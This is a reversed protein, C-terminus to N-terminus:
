LRWLIQNNNKILDFVYVNIKGFIPTGYRHIYGKYKTEMLEAQLSGYIMMSWRHIRAMISGRGNYQLSVLIASKSVISVLFEFFSACGRWRILLLNLFLHQFRHTPHHTEELRGQNQGM